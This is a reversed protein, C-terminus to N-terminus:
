ILWRKKLRAREKKEEINRKIVVRVANTKERRTV